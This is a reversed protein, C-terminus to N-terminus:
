PLVIIKSYGRVLMWERPVYKPSVAKMRASAGAHTDTLMHTRTCTTRTHTRAHTRTRAHARTHARTHARAGVHTYTHRTRTCPLSPYVPSGLARLAVCRSHARIRSLGGGEDAEHAVLARKYDALWARWAAACRRDSRIHMVARRALALVAVCRM